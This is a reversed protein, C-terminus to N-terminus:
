KVVGAYTVSPVVDVVEVSRQNRKKPCVNMQHGTQNCIFCKDKNGSYFVNGRWNLFHLASPIESKVDMYVGRVGNFIDLQIDAPFKERIVRKVKGYKGLVLSIEKDPVEPPLECM